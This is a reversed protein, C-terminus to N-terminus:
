PPAFGARNAGGPGALGLPEVEVRGRRGLQDLAPGGVRAVARGVLKCGLAAAVELEQLGPVVLTTGELSTEVGLRRYALRIM